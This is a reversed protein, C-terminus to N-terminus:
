AESLEKMAAALIVGQVPHQTVINVQWDMARGPPLRVPERSLVDVSYFPLADTLIDIHVPYADAIVEMCGYWTPAPHRHVKSNFQATLTGGADFRKVRDGDLVFLQDLWTDYHAATYGTELFYLGTPNAPDLMFAKLGTGDNYSGHYMGEQMSGVITEPKLALWDDRTMSGQTLNRPGEPGLVILGDSSAWEAGASMSVVSKPAICAHVVDVQRQDMAEPSSGSVVSPRGDTLVVLTQEYVGLAVPKHNPPVVDFGIPWAYPSYPECFRVANGCIGAMMGNWLGVLNTLTPEPTAVGAGIAIGPAPTWTLTPLTETLSQTDHVLSSASTEAVFLYATNTSGPQTVYVRFRTVDYGPTAVLGSVATSGTIDRSIIASPPSPASEWGWSNVQTYAYSYDVNVPSEPATGPESGVATPALDPAPIGMPRHSAPLDASPTLGYFDTVKPTGDGTYYLKRPVANGDEGSEYGRVVHVDGTWSLWYDAEITGPVRYITKRGAPIASVEAASRLPRLDGRGTKQNLSKTGVGDPLGKPHIARNEGTFGFVRLVTM